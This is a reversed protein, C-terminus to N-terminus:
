TALRRVLWDVRDREADETLAHPANPYLSHTCGPIATVLADRVSAPVYHDDGGFQLYVQDGLDALVAIPNLGSFLTCYHAYEEPTLRLFYQSFWNDWTADITMLVAARITPRRALLMAGYMGGYDHGVLGTRDPDVDPQAVLAGYAAVTAALQEAISETDHYDGRPKAQWPFYLDPLVAVGGTEAFRRAEAIFETRNQNDAAPELWHLYLMGPRERREAVDSPRVLFATVPLQGPVSIQVEEVTVAATGAANAM